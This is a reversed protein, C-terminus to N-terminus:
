HEMLHKLSMTFYPPAQTHIVDSIISEEEMFLIKLFYERVCNGEFSPWQDVGDVSATTIGAMALLTTYWDSMDFLCNNTVGTTLLGDFLKSSIMSPVNLGGEFWSQKGGRLPLNNAGTIAQGGNDSAFVIITDDLINANELAGVIQGVATDLATVM